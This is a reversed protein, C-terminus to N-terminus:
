SNEKKHEVRDAVQDAILTSFDDKRSNNLIRTLEQFEKIARSPWDLLAASNQLSKLYSEADSFMEPRLLLIRVKLLKANPDKPDDRVADEALASMEDLLVAPQGQRRWEVFKLDVLSRCVDSRFSQLAAMCNTLWERNPLAILFKIVGDMCAKRAEADEITAARRLHVEPEDLQNVMEGFITNLARIFPVDILTGRQRLELLERCHDILNKEISTKEDPTTESKFGDRYLLVLLIDCRLRNIDEHLSSLPDKLCAYALWESAQDATFREAPPLSRLSTEPEGSINMAASAAGPGYWVRLTSKRELVRGLEQGLGYFEILAPGFPWPLPAYTPEVTMQSVACCEVEWRCAWSQPDTIPGWAVGMSEFLNKLHSGANERLKRGKNASPSLVVPAFAQALSDRYKECCAFLACSSVLLALSQRAVSAQKNRMSALVAVGLNHPVYENLSKLGAGVVDVQGFLALLAIQGSYSPSFGSKSSQKASHRIVPMTLVNEFGAFVHAEALQRIAELLNWSFDPAAPDEAIYAALRREAAQWDCRDIDDLLGRLRALYSILLRDPIAADHIPSGSKWAARLSHEAREAAALVNDLQKRNSEGLSQKPLGTNSDVVSRWTPDSAQLSRLAECVKIWPELLPALEPHDAMQKQIATFSANLDGTRLSGIVEVVQRRREVDARTSNLRQWLQQADKLRDGGQPSLYRVLPLVLGKLLQEIAPELRALDQVMEPSAATRSSQLYTASALRYARVLQSHFNAQTFLKGAKVLASEAQELNQEEYDLRTLIVLGSDWVRLLRLANAFDPPTSLDGGAMKDRLARILQSTPSETERNKATVAELMEVLQRMSKMQATRANWTAQAEEVQKEQPPFSSQLLGDFSAGSAVSDSGYLALVSQACNFFSEDSPRAMLDVGAILPILPSLLNPEFASLTRVADVSDGTAICRLSDASVQDLLRRFAAELRLAVPPCAAQFDSPSEFKSPPSKALRNLAEGWTRCEQRANEYWRVWKFWTHVAEFREPSQFLISGNRIAQLMQEAETFAANTISHVLYAYCARQLVDDLKGSSPVDADILALEQLSIEPTPDYAINKLKSVVEQVARDEMMTFTTTVRQLRQVALFLEGKAPVDGAFIPIVPKHWANAFSVENNVEDRDVSNRSVIVLVAKSDALAGAVHKRWPGVAEKLNPDWWVVIGNRALAESLQLALSYDNRTYSIFCDHSM